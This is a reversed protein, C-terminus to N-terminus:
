LQTALLAVREIVLKVVAKGTDGNTLVAKIEKAGIQFAEMIKGIKVETLELVSREPELGLFSATEQLLTIIESPKEGIIVVALRTSEPKIGCLRIAKHIQRQASAYLMTEMAVSQSLNTKNSFAQLANLVAFYLHKQTAILDADFFQLEANLQQKKRKAKLFAETQIFKIGRFGTIEVYKGYEKIHHLM